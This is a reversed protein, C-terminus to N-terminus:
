DYITPRTSGPRSHVPNNQKAIFKKLETQYRQSHYDWGTRMDDRVGLKAIAGSGLLAPRFSGPILSPKDSTTSLATLIIEYFFSFIRDDTSSVFMKQNHITYSFSSVQGFFNGPELYTFPVLSTLVPSEVGGYNINAPLSYGLKLSEGGLHETKIGTVGTLQNSSKGTYSFFDHGDICGYGTNPWDTADALDLTTAGVVVDGDLTQDAVATFSHTSKKDFSVLEPSNFIDMLAENIKDEVNDVTMELSGTIPEKYETLVYNTLDGLTMDMNVYNSM